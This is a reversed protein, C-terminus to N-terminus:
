LPEITLQEGSLYITTPQGRVEPGLDELTRYRGAVSILEAHLARCFIRATEDGRIGALARGRLPAYVHICGEALVEAGPSVPALLVLDGPSYVQQGSRIPQEVVRTPIRVETTTPTGAPRKPPASERADPLVAWGANRAAEQQRADGHRVGIPIVGIARMAEAIAAFDPIDGGQMPQLDVVMPAGRFMAPAKGVADALAASLIQPDLSRLLLSTMLQLGARLELPATKDAHVDM